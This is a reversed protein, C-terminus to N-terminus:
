KSTCRCVVAKIGDNYSGDDNKSEDSETGDFDATQLHEVFYTNKFVECIECSLVQM